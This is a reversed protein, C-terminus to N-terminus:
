ALSQCFENLQFNYISEKELQNVSCYFMGEYTMGLYKFTKAFVEEFCAPPQLDKGTGLLAAKKQKLAQGQINDKELLDSLRDLFTKMQASATYWYMPTALIIRDYEIVDRILFQFDDDYRQDYRYPGIVYDNLDFVDAGLQQAVTKCVSAANGNSRSSGLIISTKLM